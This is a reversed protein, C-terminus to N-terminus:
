FLLSFFHHSDVFKRNEDHEKEVSELIARRFKARNIIWIKTKGISQVSSKRPEDLVLALEGFGEGDKKLAISEGNIIEQVKGKESIYVKLERVM